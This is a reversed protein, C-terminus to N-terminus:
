ILRQLIFNRGTYVLKVGLDRLEDNFSSVFGTKNMPNHPISFDEWPRNAQFHQLMSDLTLRRWDQYNEHSEVPVHSWAMLSTRVRSDM